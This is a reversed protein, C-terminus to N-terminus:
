ASWGFFNEAGLNLVMLEDSNLMSVLWVSYGVVVSCKWSCWFVM